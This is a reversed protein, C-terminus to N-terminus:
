FFSQKSELILSSQWMISISDVIQTTSSHNIRSNKFHQLWQLEAPSFRPSAYQFMSFFLVRHKSCDSESIFNVVCRAADLQMLDQRVNICPSALQNPKELTQKTTFQKTRDRLSRKFTIKTPHSIKCRVADLQM